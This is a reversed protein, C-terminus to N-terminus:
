NATTVFSGAPDPGAAGGQGRRGERGDGAEVGRGSGQMRRSM